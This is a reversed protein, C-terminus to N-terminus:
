YGLRLVEFTAYQCGFTLTEKESKYLLDFYSRKSFGIASGRDLVITILGYPYDKLGNIKVITGFPLKKDSAVIRINGYTKDNYFIKGNSVDRGSATIGICGICDPGYATMPGYYTKIVKDYSDNGTYPGFVTETIAFASYIENDVYNYKIDISDNEMNFVPMLLLLLFLVSKILM